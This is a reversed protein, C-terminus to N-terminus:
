IHAPHDINEHQMNPSILKISALEARSDRHKNLDYTYIYWDKDFLSFTAMREFGLQQYFINAAQHSQSVSVKYSPVGLQQLTDNLQRVLERGYGKRRDKNRIAIVLLEAKEPASGEKEPYSFTDLINRVLHPKKLISPLARLGLRFGSKLIAKRFMRTTDLCGVIFGAPTDEELYVFGIVSSDKLISQYYAELFPVGLTPLFEGELAEEHIQAIAQVHEQELIKITM